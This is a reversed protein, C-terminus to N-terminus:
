NRIKEVLNMLEPERLKKGGQLYSLLVDDPLALLKEFAELEDPTLNAYHRDLFNKLQVDLELMGRRSRWRLRELRRDAGTM